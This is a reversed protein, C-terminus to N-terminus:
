ASAHLLRPVTRLLLSLPVFRDGAVALGSSFGSEASACLLRPLTKPVLFARALQEGAEALVPVSGPSHRRFSAHQHMLKLMEAVPRITLSSECRTTFATSLTGLFDDGSRHQGKREQARGVTVVAWCCNRHAWCHTSRRSVNDPSDSCRDQM